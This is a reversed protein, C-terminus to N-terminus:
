VKIGNEYFIKSKFDFLSNMYFVDLHDILKNIERVDYLKESQKATLNSQCIKKTKQEIDYNHTSKKVQSIIDMLRINNKIKKGNQSFYSNIDTLEFYNINPKHKINEYLSKLKSKSKSKSKDDSSFDNSNINKNNELTNYQAISKQSNKKNRINMLDTSTKTNFKFNNRSLENFTKQRLINKNIKVMPTQGSKAFNIFCKMDEKSIEEKNQKISNTTDKRLLNKSFLKRISNGEKNNNNFSNISNRESSKKGGTKNLLINRSKNSKITNDRFLIKNKQLDLTSSIRQNYLKKNIKIKKFNFNYYKNSIEDRNKCSEAKSRIRIIKKRKKEQNFFGTSATSMKYTQNMNNNININKAFNPASLNMNSIQNKYKNRSKFILKKKTSFTQSFYNPDEFFNKDNYISDLTQKTKEIMKKSSKIEKYDLKKQKIKMNKLELKIKNNFEKIFKSNKMKIEKAINDMSDDAKIEVYNLFDKLRELFSIVKNKIYEYKQENFYYKNFEGLYYFFIDAKEKTILLPNLKFMNESLKQINDSNLNVTSKDEYDFFKKYFYKQNKKKNMENVYHWYGLSQDNINKLDYYEQSQILFKKENEELLKELEEPIKTIDQHLRFTEFIEENNKKLPKKIIYTNIKPKIRRILYDLPIIRNKNLAMQIQIINNNFYKSSLMKSFNIKTNKQKSLPIDNQRLQM